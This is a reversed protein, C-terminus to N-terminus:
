QISSILNYIPTIISIILFAVSGGLVVMIFPEMATTLTKVTEEVEREFYESVRSLSEDLKGTEEGISVMQRLIAPFLPYAAMADSMTVGKEVRRGVGLIAHTYLVNGAVDATQNLADVVLSGSGILVGLTRTFETLISEKILKGFIPLRLTYDDIILKGAETGHWRKFAFSGLVVFGILLPWFTVFFKSIGVVIKTPLPLEIGLNEYLVTLQPIVFIMMLSVVLVMGIIVIAPYMLASKITSRLKEQKELNDALRLLVKDLLGSGEAARILSIYIPSFINPYKAIAASFTSGGEIDILIGDVVATMAPNAVQGKLITLSQLLTLGATLMSALQRTFFVVDGRTSKKLFPIFSLYDTSKQESIRIPIMNRAHLYGSAEKADRAEVVGQVTKGEKTIAKYLLKM